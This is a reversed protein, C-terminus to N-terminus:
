SAVPKEFVFYQYVKPIFKSTKVIEDYDTLNLNNLRAEKFYDAFSYLVSAYEYEDSEGDGLDIRQFFFPIDGRM